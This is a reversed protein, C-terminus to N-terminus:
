LTSFHLGKFSKFIRLYKGKYDRRRYVRIEQTSSSSMLM